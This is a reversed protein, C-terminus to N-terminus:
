MWFNDSHKKLFAQFEAASLEPDTYHRKALTLIAEPYQFREALMELLQPPGPRHGLDAILSNRAQETFANHTLHYILPDVRNEQLHREIALKILQVALEEGDKSWGPVELDTTPEGDATPEDITCASSMPM